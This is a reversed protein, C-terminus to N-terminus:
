TLTQQEEEWMARTRYRTREVITMVVEERQNRVTRRTRITGYGPRGARKDLVEHEYYFSDGIRLPQVYQIDEWEFLAVIGTHPEHPESTPRLGYQQSMVLAAPATQRDDDFRTADLHAEDSFISAWFGRWDGSFDSYNEIDRATLTRRPSRIKEGVEIDEFFRSM